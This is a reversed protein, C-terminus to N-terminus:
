GGLFRINHAGRAIDALHWYRVFVTPVCERFFDPEDCRFILSKKLIAPLSAAVAPTSKLTM